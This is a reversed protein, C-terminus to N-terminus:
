PVMCLRESTATDLLACVLAFQTFGAFFVLFRLCCGLELVLFLYYLLGARVKSTTISVTWM